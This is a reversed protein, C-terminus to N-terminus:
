QQSDEGHLVAYHRPRPELPGPRPDNRFRRLPAREHQEGAQCQDRQKREPLRQSPCDPINLVQSAPQHNVLQESQSEAHHQDGREEDVMEVQESQPLNPQIQDPFRVRLQGEARRQEVLVNPMRKVHSPKHREPESRRHRARMQQERDHRRRVDQHRDSPFLVVQDLRVALLVNLIALAHRHEYGVTGGHSCDTSFGILGSCLFCCQLIAM